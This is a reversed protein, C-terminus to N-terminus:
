ISNRLKLEPPYPHFYVQKDLWDINHKRLHYKILTVPVILRVLGARYDGVIDNLEQRDPSDLVDRFYGIVHYLVNTHNKVTSKISLLDMFQTSYEDLVDVLDRDSANGVLQGLERYREQHHSLLTLKHRTHFEVLYGPTPADQIFNTLRYYAFVREVFNERLHADRLRGEDEVPLLPFKEMLVRAFVGRGTRTLADNEDYVRVREMGCSPSDKKLIYGHLPHQEALQDTRENAYSEMQETYDTRSKTARLRITGDKQELQITERPTGMGIEMEPCVPVWSFYQGPMSTVFSDHAHGGNYRVEKGLLCSSIGVKIDPSNEFTFKQWDTM